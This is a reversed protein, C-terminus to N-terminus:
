KNYGRNIYKNYLDTVCSDLYLADTKHTTLAERIVQIREFSNKQNYDLLGYVSNDKVFVFDDSVARIEAGSKDFSYESAGETLISDYEEFYCDEAKTENIIYCIGDNNTNKIQSYRNFIVSPINEIWKIRSEVDSLNNEGFIPDSGGIVKIQRGNELVINGNAFVFNGFQDCKIESQFESDLKDNILLKYMFPKSLTNTFESLQKASNYCTDYDGKDYASIYDCILQYIGKVGHDIFGSNNVNLKVGSDIMKQSVSDGNNLLSEYKDKASLLTNYVNINVYDNYDDVFYSENYDLTTPQTMVESQSSTPKNNEDLAKKKREDLEIQGEICSKANLVLIGGVVVIAGIKAINAFKISM